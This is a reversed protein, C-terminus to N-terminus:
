PHVVRQDEQQEPRKNWARIQKADYNLERGDVQDLLDSAQRLLIGVQFTYKGLRVQVGKGRWWPPATQRMFAKTLVSTGRVGNNRTIWYLRVSQLYQIRNMTDRFLLYAGIVFAVAVLLYIM